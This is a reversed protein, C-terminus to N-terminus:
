GAAAVGDLDSDRGACRDGRDEVVDGGVYMRLRAGPEGRVRPKVNWKM